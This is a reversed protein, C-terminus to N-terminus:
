SCVFAGTHTRVTFPGHEPSRRLRDYLVAVAFDHGHTVALQRLAGAGMEAASALGPWVAARDLLAQLFHRLFTHRLTRRARQHKGPAARPGRDILPACVFTHRM